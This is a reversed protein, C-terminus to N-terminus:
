TEPATDSQHDCSDTKVCNLAEGLELRAHLPPGIRSALGAVLAESLLLQGCHSDIPSPSSSPMRFLIEAGFEKQEAWEDSIAIVRAGQRGALTSFRLLSPQYRRIDAVILVTRANMELLYRQWGEPPGEVFQVNTRLLGLYETLLAAVHRSRHGGACYIRNKPDALLTLASHIDSDMVPDHCKQLQQATSNFHESLLSGGPGAQPTQVSLRQLPTEMLRAVDSKVADQFAGYGNLDLRQVLRLVTATSVNSREALTAVTCLASIPYQRLIERAVDQERRGLSEFIETIRQSVADPYRASRGPESSPSPNEVDSAIM